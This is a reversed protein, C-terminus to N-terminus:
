FFFFCSRKISGVPGRSFHHQFLFPVTQRDEFQGYGGGYHSAMLNVETSFCRDIAMQSELPVTSIVAGPFLNFTKSM